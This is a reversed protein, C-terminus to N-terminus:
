RSRRRSAAVFGLGLALLVVTSPEPIVTLGGIRNSPLGLLSTDGLIQGSTTMRFVRRSGTRSGVLLDGNVDFTLGGVADPAGISSLILGTSSYQEIVGVAEDGVWIDGNADLAIGGPRGSSLSVPFSGLFSATADYHQVEHRVWDAVWIDGNSHDVALGGIRATHSLNVNGSTPAGTNPDLYRFFNSQRQGAVLFGTSRDFALGGYQSIPTPFSNVPVSSGGLPLPPYENVISTSEDGAFVSGISLAQASGAALTLILTLSLAFSHQM